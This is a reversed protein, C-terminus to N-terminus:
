RCTCGTGELCGRCCYTRGDQTYGQGDAEKWESRPMRCKLCTQEGVEIPM